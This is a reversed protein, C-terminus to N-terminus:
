ITHNAERANQAGRCGHIVADEFNIFNDGCERCDYIPKGVHDIRLDIVIAEEGGVISM